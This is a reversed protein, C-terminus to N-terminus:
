NDLQKRRIYRKNGQKFIEFLAKPASSTLYDIYNRISQQSGHGTKDKCEFTITDVAEKLLVTNSSGLPLREELWKITTNCNSENIAVAESSEKQLKQLEKWDRVYYMMQNVRLKERAQVKMSEDHVKKSNCSRCTFVINDPTNNTRDDDLHELWCEKVNEFVYHCYFCRYSDGRALIIDTLQRRQNPTLHLRNSM